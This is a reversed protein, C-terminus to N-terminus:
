LERHLNTKGISYLKQRDFSVFVGSKLKVGIQKGFLNLYPSHILGNSNLYKLFHRKTRPVASEDFNLESPFVLNPDHFYLAFQFVVEEHTVIALDGKEYVHLGADIERTLELGPIMKLLRDVRMGLALFSLEGTTMFDHIVQDM